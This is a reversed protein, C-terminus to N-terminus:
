VRSFKYASSPLIEDFSIEFVVKRTITTATYLEFLVDEQASLLIKKKIILCIFYNWKSSRRHSIFNKLVSYYKFYKNVIFVCWPSTCFVIIDNNNLYLQKVPNWSTSSPPYIKFIIIERMQVKHYKRVLYRLLELKEIMTVMITLLIMMTNKKKKKM